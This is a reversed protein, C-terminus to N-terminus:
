MNHLIGNDRALAQSRELENLLRGLWVDFPEDAFFSAHALRIYPTGAAWALCDAAPISQWELLKFKILVKAAHAAHRTPDRTLADLRQRARALAATVREVGGFVGGHGPIVVAPHLREILDLTAGVDAFAHEGELEPFVIGFGNEWLADASILTRTRPEFLIVSHPDHGPAAHVQWRAEGLPLEAGPRIVDDIRFRECRQGTATYTLQEEDWMRVADALGPPVLTRAQPYASQLTANGGCHDSHLHTNVVFDLAKAGLVSRVLALTQSAHAVYGTDVVATSAGSAFLINNSSLWGREFVHVGAPLRLQPNM